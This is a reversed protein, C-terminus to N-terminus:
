YVIKYEKILNNEIVYFNSCTILFLRSFGTSKLVCSDIIFEFDYPANFLSGDEICLCLEYRDYKKKRKIRKNEKKIIMEIIAKRIETLSGGHYKVLERKSNIGANIVKNINPIKGSDLSKEYEIANKTNKSIITAVELAVSENPCTFDFDDEKNHWTYEAYLISFSKSIVRIAFEEMYASSYNLRGM